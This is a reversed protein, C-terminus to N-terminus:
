KIAPFIEEPFWQQLMKRAEVKKFHGISVYYLLEEEATLYLGKDKKLQISLPTPYIHRKLRRMHLLTITILIAILHFLPVFEFKLDHTKAFLAYM